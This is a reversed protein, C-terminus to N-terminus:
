NKLNAIVFLVHRWSQHQEGSMLAVHRNNLNCASIIAMSIEHYFLVNNKRHTCM